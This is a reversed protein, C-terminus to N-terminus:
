RFVSPSKLVRGEKFVWLIKEADQLVRIDELPDGDVVIFDARQGAAITGLCPLNMAEAATKTAAQIAEMETLGTAVLCELEYASEGHHNFPTGADTGVIIQVGAEVARKLNEMHATQFFMVKEITHEPVGGKKGHKLTKFASLTPVLFARKELLLEIGEEDLFSGHEITRVGAKLANRIGEAGIAHAATLKGWKEAEEVAARMEAVTLQAVTGPGPSMGGGTAMLKINDAGRKLQERAGKRAEDAGDVIRALDQIRVHEPFMDGHGGTATLCNGSALIRPGPIEGEEVAQKLAIDIHGKDGMTRITTIGGDVFRRLKKVARLAALTASEMIMPQFYDPRGALSLHSHVDILGPMLTMGQLDVADDDPNEEFPARKPDGAYLIEAERVVVCAGKTPSPSQGDILSANKFIRVAQM